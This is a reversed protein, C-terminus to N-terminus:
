SLALHPNLTKADSEFNSASTAPRFTELGAEGEVDSFHSEVPLEM